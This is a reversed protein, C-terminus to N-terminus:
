KPCGGGGWFFFFFFDMHLLNYSCFLYRIKKLNLWAGGGELDTDSRQSVFKRSRLSIRLKLLKLDWLVILVM